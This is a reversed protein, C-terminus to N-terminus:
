VLFTCHIPRVSFIWLKLKLKQYPHFIMFKEKLGDRESPLRFLPGFLFALATTAGVGAIQVKLNTPFGESHSSQPTEPSTFRQNLMQFCFNEFLKPLLLPQGSSSFIERKKEDKKRDYREM